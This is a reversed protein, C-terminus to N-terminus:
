ETPLSYPLVRIPEAASARWAVQGAQRELLPTASPLGPSEPLRLVVMRSSPHGLVVRLPALAAMRDTAAMTAGGLCRRNRGRIELALPVVGLAAM